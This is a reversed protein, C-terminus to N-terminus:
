PYRPPRPRPLQRVVGVNNCLVGVMRRASTGGRQEACSVACCLVLLLALPAFVWAMLKMRGGYPLTDSVGQRFLRRAAREDAPVLARVTRGRPPAPSTPAWKCALQQQPQATTAAAAAAADKTGTTAAPRRRAPEGSPM